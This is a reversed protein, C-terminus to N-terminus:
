SISVPPIEQRVHYKECFYPCEVERCPSPGPRREFWGEVLNGIIDDPGCRRIEGNERIRVFDRGAYCLQGRYDPLGYLFRTHDILPNITPPESRRDFQDAYAESARQSYEVFLGREEETYSKPYLRGFHRGQLIKPIITVGRDAYWRWIAPFDGFLPPYMVCSVFIEFGADRLVGVNRIFAETRKREERQQLHVGANIFDVRSPDIVEAFHRIHHEADTNSNISISHQKTLLQCLDVFRPYHFPEGGTLHLLWTLGTDDFFRTLQEVQAPPQIKRGLDTADWYCYQCRFNCTSMLIWDAEVDYQRSLNASESSIVSPATAQMGQFRSGKAQQHAAIRAGLTAM